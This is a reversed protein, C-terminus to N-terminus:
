KDGMAIRYLNDLAADIPHPKPKRDPGLENWRAYNMAVSMQRTGDASTLSIALAGFASGDHGWFTEGTATQVRHLGLGYEIQKGDLAIVPVTRQMQALSEPSVIQGALLARYFRNLDATTSVIGAGPMTWSMNYVSYDRPPDIMGFLGEYLRPHPASLTPQDPFATNELNARRIVNEAISTAFPKGTVKQLLQALLFYNTNSYVGPTAGPAGTAPADVGMRILEIPDFETFQHKDLSEASLQTGGFFASLSPFSYPLHEALGSTHNLLMRVTIETGREGPVLQPLYDAIPTDLGIRGKEVQQMVAAAVFTKTISGMRHVLGPRIPEGSAVDAVGSAGSWVREGDRVEMFVGVMGADRVADLASQLAAPDLGSETRASDTKSSAPQMTCASITLVAGVLVALPIKM